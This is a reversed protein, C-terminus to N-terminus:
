SSLPRSCTEFKRGSTSARGRVFGRARGSGQARSARRSHQGSPRRVAVPAVLERRAVGGLRRDGGGDEGAHRLREGVARAVREGRAEVGERAGRHRGRRDGEGGPRGTDEAARDRRGVAKLGPALPVRGRRRRGDDALERLRGPRLRDGHRGHTEVRPALLVGFVTRSAVPAVMAVMWSFVWVQRMSLILSMPSKRKEASPVIRYREVWRAPMPEDSSGSGSIFSTSALM